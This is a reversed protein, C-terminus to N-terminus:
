ASSGVGGYTSSSSNKALVFELPSPMLTSKLNAGPSFLGSFPTLIGIVATSFSIESAKIFNAPSLPSPPIFPRTHTEVDLSLLARRSIM